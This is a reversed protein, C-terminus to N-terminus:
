VVLGSYDVWAVGTWFIPKGSASLTTDFYIYGAAFVGLTPRSATGGKLSIRNIDIFDSSTGNKSVRCYVRGDTSENIISGIPWSVTPSPPVGAGRSQKGFGNIVNNQGADSFSKLSHGSYVNNNSANSGITVSSTNEINFIIVNTCYDINAASGNFKGFINYVQIDSVKAKDLVASTIYLCNNANAQYISGINCHLISGEANSEIYVVNDVDFALYGDKPVDTAYYIDNIKIDRILGYIEVSNLSASQAATIRANGIKINQCTFGRKGYFYLATSYFFSLQTREIYIDEVAAVQDVGGFIIPTGFGNLVINGFFSVRSASKFKIGYGVTLAASAAAQITGYFYINEPKAADDFLIFGDCNSAAYFEGGQIYWTSANSADNILMPGDFGWFVRSGIKITGIQSDKPKPIVVSKSRFSAMGRKAFEFRSNIYGDVTNFWSLNYGSSSNDLSVIGDGHFIEYNGACIDGNIELTIGASVTISSGSCIVISVNEPLTKNSTVSILSGSPVILTAGSIAAADIAEGFSSYDTYMIVDDLKNKITRYDLGNISYGVLSGDGDSLESRLTVDTRDVWAGAGVGGSTAPTSGAPVTKPLTGGWGYYKGDTEYFVVDDTTTVTAGLLFSGVMNLGAEAALRKQTEYTAANLTVASWLTWNPDTAPNTTMLVPTSVTAGKAFWWTRVDGDVFERLQNYTDEYEGQAWAIPPKFYLSDVMAKRVSPIKSGDEVTVEANADGNIVGHLQNSAEIAIETAEQFTDAPYHAM